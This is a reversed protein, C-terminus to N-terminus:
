QTTPPACSGGDQFHFGLLTTLPIEDPNAVLERLRKVAIRGLDENLSELCTMPHRVVDERRTGWFLVSVDQPVRLGLSRCHEILDHGEGQSTVLIATPREALGFLPDVVEWHPTPEWRVQTWGEAIPLKQASMEEVYGRHWAQRHLFTLNESTFAIRKHGLKVLYRVAERGAEFDKCGVENVTETIRHDGVVVIPKGLTKLRRYHADCVAGMLLFGDCESSELLSLDFEAEEDLWPYCFLHQSDRNAEVAAAHFTHSYIRDTARAGVLVFGLNKVKPKPQFVEISRGQRLRRNSSYGLRETARWVKQRTQHPIRPNDRLALSATALSVSAYRAVDALTVKSALQRVAGM